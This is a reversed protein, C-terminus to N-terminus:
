SQVRELRLMSWSAPPLVARLEAAQMSHDGSDRPVVRDPQQASNTADGDPDTLVLHEVVQLQDGFPLAITVEVDDATGRNVAFVSISGSDPDRTVVADLPDVGGLTSSTVQTASAIECALVEGRAHMATLAFPFFSPQRWSTGSEVRILAMVNVLQAFCAIGVRDSHRLLAILLGGIVVSDDVTHIDESLRPAVAWDHEPDQVRVEVNWEDFSLLLTRDSGREAAIEDCIAAVTDIFSDMRQSSALHAVRDDGVKEYYRHMSIYDIDDFAHRLVTREWEGFSPMRDHSSGCLVVSIAPDVMKMARATQAAISGYEDASRHGIQWPGDMENGLCWVKVNYPEEHGNARRLDSYRTGSAINTYEILQVAEAVGRTGLNVALMPEAGVRQAWGMFEDLGFTNPEISHWALDPRPQRQAIPGIGDQWDYGSVFNGGPYRVISVGAQRALDVVDTRIGAADALADGPDFIGEYVCRGMHEVLTGFLRPPVPAVVETARVTV